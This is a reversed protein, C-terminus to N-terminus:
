IALDFSSSLKYPAARNPPLRGPIPEYVSACRILCEKFVEALKISMGISQVSSPDVQGVLQHLTEVKQIARGAILQGTALTPWSGM